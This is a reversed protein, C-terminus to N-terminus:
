PQKKWRELLVAFQEKDPTAFPCALIAKCMASLVAARLELETEGPSVGAIVQFFGDKNPVVAFYGAAKADTLGVLIAEHVPHHLPTASFEDFHADFDMRIRRVRKALQRDAVAYGLSLRM